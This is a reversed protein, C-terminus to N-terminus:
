AAKRWLATKTNGLVQAEPFKKTTIAQKPCNASCIGCGKCLNADVVAIGEDNKNVAGYPCVITCVNCGLCLSEDIVAQNCECLKESGLCAKCPGCGLCRRAEFIATEKNRVLLEDAEEFSAEWRGVDIHVSVYREPKKTIKGADKVWTTERVEGDKGKRMKKGSLYRDISEAARRGAGVAEIVSAPGTVVDGGSFVGAVNTELTVPDVTVLGKHRDV